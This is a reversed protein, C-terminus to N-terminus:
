DRQAYKRRPARVSRVGQLIDVKVRKGQKRRRALSPFHDADMGHSTSQSSCISITAVPLRHLDDPSARRTLHCPPSPRERHTCVPSTHVHCTLTRWIRPLTSLHHDLRKWRMASQLTASTQCGGLAAIERRRDKRARSAAQPFAALLPKMGLARKLYVAGDPTNLFDQIRGRQGSFFQQIGNLSLRRGLRSSLDLFAALLISPRCPFIAPGFLSFLDASFLLYSCLLLFGPLRRSWGGVGGWWFFLVVFFLAARFRGNLRHCVIAPALRGGAYRHYRRRNRLRVSRCCTGRTMRPRSAIGGDFRRAAAWITLGKELHPQAEHVLEVTAPVALVRDGGHPLTKVSQCSGPAVNGLTYPEAFEDSSLGEPLLEAQM